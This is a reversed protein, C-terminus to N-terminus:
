IKDCVVREPYPSDYMGYYQCRWRDVFALPIEAAADSPSALSRSLHPYEPDARKIMM